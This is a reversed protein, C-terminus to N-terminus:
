PGTRVEDEGPFADERYFFGTERSVLAGALFLHFPTIFADGWASFLLWGTQAALMGGLLPRLAFPDGELSVSRKIMSVIWAVYLGMAVLGGEMVVLLLTGDIIPVWADRPIPNGWGLWLARRVFPSYTDVELFRYALSQSLDGGQLGLFSSVRWGNGGLVMWLFLVVGALGLLSSPIWARERFLYFFGLMIVMGLVPGRSLSMLVALFFLPIQLPLWSTEDEGTERLKARWALSLGFVLTMVAGLFLPTYFFVRPRFFGFRGPTPGQPLGYVVHALFPGRFFEAAMPLIYFAALAFFFPLWDELDEEEGLWVRGALYPVFFQVLISILRSGTAYAGKGAALSAFVLSLVFLAGLTDCLNWRLRVVQKGSVLLLLLAPFSVAGMKDLAPIPGPISLTVGPPLLFLALVFARPIVKEPGWVLGGLFTLAMFLLLVLHPFGLEM